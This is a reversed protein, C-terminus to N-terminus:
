PVTWTGKGIFSSSGWPNAAEVLLNKTGAFSPSKFVIQVTITVVGGTANAVSFGIACQSNQLAASSGLPKTSLATGADNYLGITGNTRNYVVYCADVPSSGPTVLISIRTLDTPSLPTTATAAFNQNLGSGSAPSISNVTPPAGPVSWTGVHVWGSNFGNESAFLFSNKAGAFSPSFAINLTMAISTAGITVTSGSGYLTCQSNSVSGSSGIVFGSSGNTYTDAFLSYRNNIKDYLIYCANNLTFSGPTFLMAAAVLFNSGGQDSMVFTFPQAGGTGSSPSVSNAVPVGGAVVSYTGKQVWGTNGNPGVAYMYINKPGTFQGKFSLPLNIITSTGSVSMTPVGLACQSNQITASSGFPKAYSGTGSDWLLAVTNANRDFVLWCANTGTLTNNIMMATAQVNAAAKTDSFVFTFVQSAGSGSSPSVSDASVQSVGAKAVWGTNVSADEAYLYITNNGPFGTDLVLSLTLTLNNGVLVAGSGAGNLQCQSNQASGSGPTVNVGGSSVVNNALTFTNSAPNYNIRCAFDISATRSLLVAVNVLSAAGGSHSFQATVIAAGNSGYVINASDASPVTSPPAAVGIRAVWGTNGSINSTQYAAQAPLDYSSTQGGVFINGSSDVAIANVQDSGAGGYLTSFSLANGTPNLKFIFGDYLGKFGTQVGGVNAFSVSSTYGGVYANGSSDVAIGSGWDFGTWGLYTSYIRATGTSNLKTVFVDRSGGANTQLTGATVPFNTSSVVGTVYASGSADIAIANGQEPATLSGGSGGLYTSYLIQTTATTKIKAIFADQGGANLAQTAAVVPLNTSLTGGTLFVIGTGDTAIGGVHENQSGGFFTSFVRVGSGDLKAVFGDQQGGIAGQTANLVGFDASLTDGAIYAFGTADVAIATAADYNAGGLYTSYTLASGAANLKFAFAEKGGVFSSRAPAVLPFNSSGTAGAVHAQGLSDVAIGAARDDGNGGIYTAYVLTAGTADFKAVFSDVGGRNVAQVAGAIPFDISETWGAAYLSGLGDRAVATVAGMGSGGLYTSYTIVPDIVLPLLRDYSGIKFGVSNDEFVQYAAEVSVRSGNRTQYVEPAWERFDMTGVKVRLEGGEVWVASARPYQMRIVSPDAGPQVVFESKLMRGVGSYSADIGPYVGHYVVHSFTPLGTHWAAPDRGFIFNAQGQLRGDGELRAEDSSGAFNVLLEAGGAQYSVGDPLFAARVGPTEVVYRVRAEFQGVNPIFVIPLGEGFVLPSLLTLVAAVRM